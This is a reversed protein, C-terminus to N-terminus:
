IMRRAQESCFSHYRRIMWFILCFDLDFTVALGNRLCLIIINLDYISRMADDTM